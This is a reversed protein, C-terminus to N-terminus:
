KKNAVEEELKILTLAVDKDFQTGANSDLEDFIKKQKLLDRYPRSSNMADYADAVACILQACSMDEGSIRDPYGKGDVREHHHRVIPIANDLFKIPMLMEYGIAPHQKIAEYEEGTLKDPKNLIGDSIGIKGIDHLSAAYRLTNIEQSTLKMEKAISMSYESVRESHGQTYRSKGELILAFSSMTSLYSAELDQFLRANDISISAHNALISLFHLDSQTFHKDTKPKNINLVGILKKKEKRHAYLLEESNAGIMPISIFSKDPLHHCLKQFLPHRTVDNVLIPKRDAAVRGAIGENIKVRCKEVISKRIGVSVTIFLEEEKEDLIMLSGRTAGTHLLATTLILHLLDNLNITKTLDNSVELLSITEKLRANESSLRFRELANNIAIRMEDIKFPKIIYDYAGKKIAAMTTELDAFGTMVLVVLDPYQQKLSNMLELGGMGPMQIDTIVLDFTNEKLAELAKTGNEASHVSYGERSLFDSLLTRITGEDDVVLIHEKKDMINQM